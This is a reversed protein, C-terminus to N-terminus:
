VEATRSAYVGRSDQVAYRSDQEKSSAGGTFGM